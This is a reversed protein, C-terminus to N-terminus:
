VESVVSRTGGKAVILHDLLPMDLDAFLRRLWHTARIDQPSPTPDGSPHNHVLLFGAAGHTHGKLHILGPRISCGAINGQGVTEVALLNLECDVYLALLWERTEDALTNVYALM